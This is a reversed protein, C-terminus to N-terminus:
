FLVMVSNEFSGFQRAAVSEARATGRETHACHPAAPAASPFATVALPSLHAREGVGRPNGKGRLLKKSRDQEPSLCSLLSREKARKARRLLFPCKPVSRSASSSRQQDYM